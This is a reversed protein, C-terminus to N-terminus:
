LSTRLTQLTREVDALAALLLSNKQRLSRAEEDDIADELEDPDDDSDVLPLEHEWSRCVAVFHRLHAARAMWVGGDLRDVLREDIIRFAREMADCMAVLSRAACTRTLGPSEVNFGTVRFQNALFATQPCM